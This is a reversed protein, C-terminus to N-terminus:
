VDRRAFLWMSLGLLSVTYCSAYVLMATSPPNLTGILPAPPIVIPVALHQVLTGMSMRYMADVPVLLSSVIGLREVQLNDMEIGIQEVFGGILSIGYLVMVAVGTNIPALRVSLTLTLSLLILPQMAFAMGAWLFYAPEFSVLPSDTLWRNLGYVSLFLVWAYLFFIVANGLFKGLLIHSRRIPKSLLSYMLGSEVEGQIAGATSLIALLCVILSSFYLGVSYFFSVEYAFAHYAYYNLNEGTSALHLGLGYFALFLLTLLFVLLFIRRHIGEALTLRFITSM